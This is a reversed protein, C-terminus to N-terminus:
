KQIIKKTTGDSYLLILLKGTTTPDVEQGQLDYAKVITPVDNTAVSSIRASSSCDGITTHIDKQVFDIPNTCITTLSPNDHCYIM